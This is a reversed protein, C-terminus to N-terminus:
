FESKLQVFARKSLSLISLYRKQRHFTRESCIECLCHSQQFQGCVGATQM